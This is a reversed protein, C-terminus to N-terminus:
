PPASTKESFARLASKFFWNQQARTITKIAVLKNLATTVCIEYDKGSAWTKNFGCPIEPFLVYQSQPVDYLRNRDGGPWLVELTGKRAKALGFIVDLAHQSGHSSGATISNIVSKGGDPTFQVVAGIGDRNVRGNVVLGASGQTKVKVWGNRNTASAVEVALSGRQLPIGNWEFDGGKDIYSKSGDTPEFIPFFRAYKDFPSNLKKQTFQLKAFDPLDFNSVSVIDIFGDDNLDGLSLGLVNRRGHDVTETIAKEDLVFKANCGENRLITGPNSSGKFLGVDAGGYFIIDPDGDNDYDAIGAGNGFPTSILDGVGPDNFTGDARAVFWRSLMVGPAFFETMNMLIRDGLNTGFIDMRGDCNLDGVAIGTWSGPKAMGVELSVDTFIGKGNNNFIRIYGRDVGGASAPSFFGQEDTSIIDVDGDQDYDVMAISWSIAANGTADKPLGALKEIGSATSNDKFTNGGQNLLLQNHENLKWQEIAMAHRDKWDFTNAVVIDLLGDNNVDGISCTASTRPPTVKALNSSIDIFSGAGNNELLRNPEARGLVFLDQDGDNDIDGFCVGTSDQGVLGSGSRKGVDIFSLEGTEKLQSSFLSNAVNPGNTVYIDLDGDLDYDFLAVGPSGQAHIPLEPMITPDVIDQKIVVLLSNISSPVRGYNLGSKKDGAIDRFVVDAQVTSNFIMLFVLLGKRWDRRHFCCINLQNVDNFNNM